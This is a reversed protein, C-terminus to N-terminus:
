EEGSEGAAVTVAAEGDQGSQPVPTETKCRPCRYSAGRRKTERLV